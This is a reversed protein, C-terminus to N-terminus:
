IMGAIVLGSIVTPSGCSECEGRDQDGELDTTYDCGANMCIAPFVSDMGRDELLDEFTEYGEVEVLKALKEQKAKETYRSIPNHIDSM